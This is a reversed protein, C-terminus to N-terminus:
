KHLKQYLNRSGPIKKIYFKIDLWLKKLRDKLKIGFVKKYLIQDAKYNPFVYGPHKLPFKIQKTAINALPNIASFTHTANASFGINSVLNVRPVITYRNELWNAFLWQYDWADIKDQYLLDFGTTWADASYKNPHVTQFFSSNKLDPWKSLKIDFSNHWRNRWTAWGWCFTYNSFFYSDDGKFCGPSLNNGSIMSVRLDSEYYNLLDECYHFFDVHPLCDDELIIAKDTHKFVWDIGSSPRYKCGLNSESYNKYIKCKWNINSVIARCENVLEDENKVDRPGDSILFLKDPKVSSIVSFIKKTLDPRNFFILAVPTTIKTKKQNKM